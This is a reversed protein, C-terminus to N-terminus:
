VQILGNSCYSDVQELFGWPGELPLTQVQPTHTRLIAVKSPDPNKPHIQKLHKSLTFFIRGEITTQHNVMTCDTFIVLM